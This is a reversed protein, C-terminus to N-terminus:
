LHALLKVLLEIWVLLVIQTNVAYVVLWTVLVYIEGTPDLVAVEPDVVSIFFVLFSPRFPYFIQLDAASTM